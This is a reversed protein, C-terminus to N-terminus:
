LEFNDFTEIKRSKDTLFSPGSLIGDQIEIIEHSAVGTMKAIIKASEIERSHRQKYDFTVAHVTSYFQQAWHLCITSDQGGSLVVLASDESMFRKAQTGRAQPVPQIDGKKQEFLPRKKQAM